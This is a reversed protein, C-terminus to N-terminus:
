STVPVMLVIYTSCPDSNVKASIATLVSEMLEYAKQKGGPMIAPREQM